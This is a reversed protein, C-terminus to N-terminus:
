AKTKAARRFRQSRSRHMCFYPELLQLSRELDVAVHERVAQAASGPDRGVISEILHQHRTPSDFPPSHQVGALWLSTLACMKEIAECLGPSRSCEAVRLHLRQHVPFYAHRDAHLALADVRAALTVLDARERPAAVQACRIAAEVQLAELVIYHGTVDDASPIRVRTGARARHELLGESELRLLAATVPPLSTSLDAAVRRRSIVEGMALDGRLIRRRMVAYVEAAVTGPDADTRM